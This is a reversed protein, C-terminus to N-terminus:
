NLLRQIQFPKGEVVVVTIQNVEVMMTAELITIVIVAMVEMDVAIDIVLKNNNVM